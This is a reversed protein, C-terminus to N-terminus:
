AEKQVIEAPESISELTKVLQKKLSKNKKLRLIDAISIIGDLKGQNTVVPLRKIRHKRMRKLVQKVSNERSCAILRRNVVDGALIDDAPLRRTTVAICVDRDTIMGVVIGDETVIPVVGCDRQWMISVAKALSENARCFGVDRTMVKEINM